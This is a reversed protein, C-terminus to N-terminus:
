LEETKAEKVGEPNIEPHEAAPNDEPNQQQQQEIILVQPKQFSIKPNKIVPLMNKRLCWKQVAAAPIAREEGAHKLHGKWYFIGWAKGTRRHPHLSTAVARTVLWYTDKEKESKIWSVHQFEKGIGLNPFSLAIDLLSKRKKVGKIARQIHKDVASATEVVLRRSHTGLFPNKFIPINKKTPKVAPIFVRPITLAM